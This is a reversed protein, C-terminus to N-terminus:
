ERKLRDRQGYGKEGLVWKWAVVSKSHWTTLSVAELMTYLYLKIPQVKQRGRESLIITKLNIWIIADIIWIITDITYIYCIQSIWKSKPPYELQKWSRAIIFLAALFIQVHRWTSVLKAEKSYIDLLLFTLYCPLHM